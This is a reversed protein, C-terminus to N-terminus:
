AVAAIQPSDHGSKRTRLFIGRTQVRAPRLSCAAVAELRSVGGMEQINKLALDLSVRSGALRGNPLRLAIGDDILAGAGYSASANDLKPPDIRDTILVLKDRKARAALQVMRPDVHAGDCILDCSLRDDTLATGALGPERHHFGGMANFLHTVHRAGADVAEETEASAARSHGLAAVIGRRALTAQLKGAGPVEPALTVMAIQGEGRDLIEDGEAADYDRIARSPQAGAAGPNLWPGELHLGIPVAGSAQNSQLAAVLGSVKAGLDAAPWAVTTALFATTGHRVLSAASQRVSADFEAGEAFIMSGHFHLDIFGPALWRGTLDVIEADSPAAEGPELRAAIRGNEILLQGRTPAPEEPDLLVANSLLQRDV